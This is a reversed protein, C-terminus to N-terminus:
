KFARKEKYALPYTDFCGLLSFFGRFRLSFFIDRAAECFLLFFLNDGMRLHGRNVICNQEVLDPRDSFYERTRMECETNKEKREKSDLLNMKDRGLLQSRFCEKLM